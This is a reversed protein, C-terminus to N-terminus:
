LMCECCPAFQIGSIPVDDRCYKFTNINHTSQLITM